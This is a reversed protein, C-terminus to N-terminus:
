EGLCRKLVQLGENLEAESITLPPLLRLIKEGIANILLGEGTCRQQIEKARTKSLEVAFILGVGRIEAILGPTEASIKEFYDRVLSGKRSVSELFGDQEIIDLVALAASCVVPNGGFTSAHDGPELVGSFPASTVLAGIPLGGGLGKASTFLDPRVGWNEYSWMKGSRGMGCQVEDFILLLGERDCLNRLGRIFNEEAVHVGGEGQIPEIMIAATEGDILAQFSELDNFKAYSFGELVPAFARRYKPQGTATLAAMTRGHFSQEATIIKYRDERHKSISVLKNVPEIL